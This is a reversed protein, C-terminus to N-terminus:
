HPSPNLPCPDASRYVVRDPYVDCTQQEPDTLKLTVVVQDATQYWRVQPHLRACGIM